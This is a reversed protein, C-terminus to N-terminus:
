SHHHRDLLGEKLAYALLQAVSHVGIKEMLNTRHRDITKPSLGLKEAMERCTAESSCWGPRM